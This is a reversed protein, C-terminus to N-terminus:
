AEHQQARERILNTIATILAGVAALVVATGGTYRGASSDLWSWGYIFAARKMCFMILVCAYVGAMGMARLSAWERRWAFMAARTLLVAIGLLPVMPGLITAWLRAYGTLPSLHRFGATTAVICLMAAAIFCAEFLETRLADVRRVGTSGSKVACAFAILTAGTLFLLSTMLVLDATM